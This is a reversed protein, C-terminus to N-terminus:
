FILKLILSIIFGLLALIVTRTLLFYWTKKNNDLERYFGEGKQKLSVVFIPEGKKDSRVLDIYNDFCLNTMITDLEAPFIVFKDSCFTIIDRPSILSSKKGM